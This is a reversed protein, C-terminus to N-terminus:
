GGIEWVYVGVGGKLRMVSQVPFMAGTPWIAIGHMNGDVTLTPYPRLLGIHTPPHALLSAKGLLACPTTDLLSTDLTCATCCLAAGRGTRPPAM